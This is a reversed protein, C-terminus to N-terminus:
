GQRQARQIADTVISYAYSLDPNISRIGHTDWLRDLGERSLHSQEGLALALYYPDKGSQAVVERVAQEACDDISRDPSTHLLAVARQTLVDLTSVGGRDLEQKPSGM